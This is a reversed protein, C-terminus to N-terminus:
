LAAALESGMSCSTATRRIPSQDPTSSGPCGPQSKAGGRSMFAETTSRYSAFEGHKRLEIELKKRASTCLQSVRPVGIGMFQGVEALTYENPDLYYLMMAQREKENLKRFADHLLKKHEKLVMMEFSSGHRDDAIVDELTAGPDMAAVPTSLSVPNCSDAMSRVHHYEELSLNAGAAAEESTPVRGLADTLQATTARLHKIRVRASRSCWDQSRMGDRIAGRIRPDAFAMISDSKQPDFRRKADLLGVLGDQVLDNLDVKAGSPILRHIHGAISSVRQILEIETEM